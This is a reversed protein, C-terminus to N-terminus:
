KLGAQELISAVTGTRLDTKGHRAVTVRGKKAPHKLQMHSGNQEHIYWGDDRLIRLMERVPM